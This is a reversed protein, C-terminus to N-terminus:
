GWLRPPVAWPRAPEPPARRRRGLVAAAPHAAVADPVLRVQARPERRDAAARREVAGEVEGAVRSDLLSVAAGLDQDALRPRELERATAVGRGRELEQAAHGARLRVVLSRALARRELGVAVRM